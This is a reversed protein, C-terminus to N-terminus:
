FAGPLHQTSPKGNRPPQKAMRGGRQDIARTITITPTIATPNAASLDGDGSHAFAHNERV